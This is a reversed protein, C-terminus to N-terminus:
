YINNDNKIVRRVCVNLNYLKKLEGLSGLKLFILLCIKHFFLGEM